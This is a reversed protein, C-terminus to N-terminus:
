GVVSRIFAEIQRAPMAGSQRGIEKGDRFVLLTPIGRINFAASLEPENDSNLKVLRASGALSLAAKEFEPAMMHCPGCWPAWVDVVVPLSSKDIQRRLMAGTVDAPAALSLSEHCAGCKAAGAGGEATVRNLRGCHPCVVQGQEAM